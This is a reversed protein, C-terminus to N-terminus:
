VKPKALIKNGVACHLCMKKYCYSKTLHILAQSDLASQNEIEYNKWTNTIANKEPLLQQLWVIAKEKYVEDNMYIGYAFLTPVIANIAITNTMQNGLHKPLYEHEDDQLTYHYHWYDNCTINFLDIVQKINDLNKITSFLHHSQYILMALQALRITPFNAPRMRLFVPATHITKLNYKKQLFQYEKLLMIAYTNSNNSQLLNTQGLLLAELQNIQNKHKALIQISISQAMQLFLEANQQLGFNYALTQWFTEEWSNNNQAFLQLIKEAKQQLREAVLREKFSLWALSSLAPLYNGCPLKDANQMLQEYRELLIKPVLSQLELTPLAIKNNSFVQADNQWVVHLITNNYNKDHQHQHTNWLSAKVHLEINGILTVNNIKITAQLFDAGQHHNLNGVNIIQLADDQQTHLQQTNFYQHQWIFQLLKETM